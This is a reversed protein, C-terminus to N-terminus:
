QREEVFNVGRAYVIGGLKSGFNALEPDTTLYYIEDKTNKITYVFQKM